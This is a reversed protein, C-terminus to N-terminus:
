PREQSAWLGRGLGLPVFVPVTVAPSGLRWGPLAQGLGRRRGKRLHRPGLMPLAMWALDGAHHQGPQRLRLQNDEGSCRRVLDSVSLALRKLRLEMLLSARYWM